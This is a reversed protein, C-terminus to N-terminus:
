RAPCGCAAGQRLFATLDQTQHHIHEAPEAQGVLVTTMGLQHPVALNRPDDEVMVAAAPEVRAKELVMRFAEAQPKPCYAADEIGYIATFASRLGRARSVNEGHARSGNTYIIAPASLAEIAARLGPDIELASLDIDHVEALFADPEVGHRAMLGALTTGYEQWFADRLHRAVDATVELERIIFTEMKAEIQAFLRAEPPYLTNDLDFVWHKIDTSPM